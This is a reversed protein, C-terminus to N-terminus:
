RPPPRLPSPRRHPRPEGAHPRGRHPPRWDPDGRGPTWHPRGPLRDFHRPWGYYPYQLGRGLYPRSAAWPIGHDSRYGSYEPPAVPVQPAPPTRQAERNLRDDRLRETTAALQEIRQKSLATSDIDTAPALRIEEVAVAQPLPADGYSVKGQADVSKYILTDADGSDADGSLVQGAWLTALAVALLRSRVAKTIM